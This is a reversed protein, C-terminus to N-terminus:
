QFTEVHVCTQIPTHFYKPSLCFYYTGSSQFCVSKVVITIQPSTICYPHWFRIKNKLFSLSFILGCSIWYNCIVLFYIKQLFGYVIINIHHYLHHHHHCCFCIFFSVDAVFPWLKTLQKNLWKVQFLLYFFIHYILLVFVISIISFFFFLWLRWLILCRRVYFYWLLVYCAYTSASIGFCLM